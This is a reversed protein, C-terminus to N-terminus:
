IELIDMKGTRQNRQMVHKFYKTEIFGESNGPSLIVNNASLYFEQNDAMAKELDIYILLDCSKRMGSTVKTDDPEGCAFHIHNRKMRSLGQKKISEWKKAYTGHLVIPFDVANTIRTLELDAVQLTHGQNARIKLRGTELDPEMFYRKKDNTAVVRTIDNVTYHKLQPQRLLDDVYIFGG